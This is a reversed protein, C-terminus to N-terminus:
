VREVSRDEYSRYNATRLNAPVRASARHWDRLLRASNRRVRETVNVPSIRKRAVQTIEEADRYLVALSDERFKSGRGPAARADCPRAVPACRRFFWVEHLSYSTSPPLTNARM